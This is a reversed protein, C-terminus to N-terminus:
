RYEIHNQKERHLEDKQNNLQKTIFDIYYRIDEKQAATTTPDNLERNLDKIQNTFIMINNELYVIHNPLKPVRPAQSIVKLPYVGGRKTKHKRTKYLRKKYSLKSKTKPM